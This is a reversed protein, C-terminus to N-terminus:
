RDSIALPWPLHLSRGAFPPFHVGRVLREVCEASPTGAQAGMVTARKVRGDPMILIDVPFDGRVGFQNYCAVLDESLAGMLRKVTGSPLKPPLVIKAIKGQPRNQPCSMDNKDVAVRKGLMKPEARYVEGSCKNYVRHAALEFTVVGFKQRRGIRTVGAVPRYILDLRLQPRVERDFRKASMTEPLPVELEALSVDALDYLGGKRAKIAKPEKFVFFRAKAIDGGQREIMPHDCTLCARLAIKMQPQAGPKSPSLFSLTLPGGTSEGDFTQEYLKSQHQAKLRENLAECFLRRFSSAKGQCSKVFPLLVARMDYVETSLKRVKEYNETAGARTPSGLLVLSGVLVLSGM